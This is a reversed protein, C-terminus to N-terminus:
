PRTKPRLSVEIATPKEYSYFIHKGIRVIRHLKRRWVPRVQTTHYHDVDAHPLIEPDKIIETALKQSKAWAEKDKPKPVNGKRVFSFQKGQKIVDCM